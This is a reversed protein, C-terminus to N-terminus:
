NSVLASNSKERSFRGTLKLTLPIHEGDYLDNAKLLGTDTPELYFREVGELFKVNEYKTEFWHACGCAIAAYSVTITISKGSVESKSSNQKYLTDSNLVIPSAKSKGSDKVDSSNGHSGCGVVQIMSIILILKM